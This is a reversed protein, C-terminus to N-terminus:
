EHRGVLATLMASELICESCFTYLGPAFRGALRREKASTGITIAATMLGGDFLNGTDEGDISLPKGCKSCKDTM